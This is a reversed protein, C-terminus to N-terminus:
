ILESLMLKKDEIKGLLYIFRLFFLMDALFTTIQFNLLARFIQQWHLKSIDVLHMGYWHTGTHVVPGQWMPRVMPSSSHRQLMTTERLFHDSLALSFAM